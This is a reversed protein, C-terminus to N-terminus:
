SARARHAALLKQRVREVINNSGFAMRATVWLASWGRSELEAIQSHVWPRYWADDREEDCEVAVKWRPWGM